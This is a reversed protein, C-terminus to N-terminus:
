SVVARLRTDGATGWTHILKREESIIKNTKDIFMYTKYLTYEISYGNPSPNHNDAMSEKKREKKGEKRETKRKKEKKRRGKKKREKM